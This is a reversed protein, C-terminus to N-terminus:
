RTGYGPGYCLGWYATLPTDYGFIIITDLHLLHACNYPLEGPYTMLHSFPTKAADNFPNIYYLQVAYRLFDEKHDLNNTFDMNRGAPNREFFHIETDEPEVHDNLFTMILSKDLM